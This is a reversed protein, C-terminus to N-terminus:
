SSRLKTGCQICFKAGPENEVGCKPCTIVGGEEPPTLESACQSCFRARPRNEAGCKSCMIVGAKEPDALEAGCNVCFSADLENLAGCGPCTRMEGAAERARRRHPPGLKMVAAGVVLATFLVLGLIGWGWLVRDPPETTPLPTPIATPMLVTPSPPAPVTPSPPLSTPTPTPPVATPSEQVMVLRPAQIVVTPTPPPSTPTPPELVEVVEVRVPFGQQDFQSSAPPYTVIEKARRDGAYGRMSIRVYVLTPRSYDRPTVEVRLYHTVGKQWDRYCAEAIPYVATVAERARYHLLDEGPHVIYAPGLFTNDAPCTGDHKHIRLSPNDPFGMTIYGDWALDGDNRAILTVYFSQGPAVPRPDIQLQVLLPNPGAAHVPAPRLMQLVILILMPSLAAAKTRQGRM